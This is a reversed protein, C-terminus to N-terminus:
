TFLPGNVSVGGGQPSGQPPGGSPPQHPTTDVPGPHGGPPPVGKEKCKEEQCQGTTDVPLKVKEAKCKEDQCDGHSSTDVKHATDM